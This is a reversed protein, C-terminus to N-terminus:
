FCQLTKNVRLCKQKPAKCRQSFAQTYCRVSPSDWVHRLMAHWVSILIRILPALFSATSKRTALFSPFHARCRLRQRPPPFVLRELSIRTVSVLFVRLRISLSVSKFGFLTRIFPLANEALSCLNSKCKLSCSIVYGMFELNNFIFTKNLDFGMAVIDKANERALKIAEEIKLDKWLTKEDDTLQIILPVDFTEQLWKTMIFPVLHGIHLSGSSPGRGTYLYFPKGQEKLTLITHLDRHSFFIGRRILHHAPKGTIKEFRAILEEDIKSSGFREAVHWCFYM